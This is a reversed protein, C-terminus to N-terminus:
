GKQEKNYKGAFDGNGRYVMVSEAEPAELFTEEGPRLCDVTHVTTEM